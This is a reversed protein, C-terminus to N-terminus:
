KRPIDVVPVDLGKDESFNPNHLSSGPIATSGSPGLLAVLEATQKEALDNAAQVALAADQESDPIVNGSSDVMGSSPPLMARHAVANFFTAFHQMLNQSLDTRPDIVVSMETASMKIETAKGGSMDVNKHSMCWSAFAMIGCVGAAWFPLEWRQKDFWSFAFGAALCGIAAISCLMVFIQSKKPAVSFDAKVEGSVGM